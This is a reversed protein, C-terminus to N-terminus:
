ENKPFCLESMDQVPDLEYVSVKPIQVEAVGGTIEFVNHHKAKGPSSFKSPLKSPPLHALHAIRFLYPHGELFLPKLRRFDDMQEYPKSGHFLGDMKPTKCGRNKSVGM